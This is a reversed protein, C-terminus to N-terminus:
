QLNVKNRGLDKAKYLARDATEILINSHDMDPTRSSVGGSITVYIKEKGMPTAMVKLRIRDAILYANEKSTFPM